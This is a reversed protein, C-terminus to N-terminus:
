ESLSDFRPHPACRAWLVDIPGGAVEDDFVAIAQQGYLWAFTDVNTKDPNLIPGDEYQEHGHVVHRGEFSYNYDRNDRMWMCQQPDQEALPLTTNFGAHVFARHEDLYWHPLQEMWAVDAALTPKLPYLQDGSVYGYSMLTHGGGNGVWWSIMANRNLVQVAMDEHNGKLIVWKWNDGDPGRRLREIVQAGAEGRDIFDGCCVFTAPKDGADFEIVRIVEDLIDRRGHIDGIAYTKAM